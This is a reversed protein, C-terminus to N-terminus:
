SKWACTQERLLVGVTLRWNATAYIHVWSFYPIKMIKWTVAFTCPLDKPKILFNSQIETNRKRCFLDINAVFAMRWKVADRKIQHNWRKKLSHSHTTRQFFILLKTFSNSNLCLLSCLLIFHHWNYLTHNDQQTYCLSPVMKPLEPQVCWLNGFILLIIVRCPLWNANVM